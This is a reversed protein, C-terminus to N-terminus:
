DSFEFVGRGKLTFFDNYSVGELPDVFDHVDLNNSIEVAKDFSEATIEQEVDIKFSKQVIYKNLKKKAM